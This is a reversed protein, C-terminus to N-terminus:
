HTDEGGFVMREMPLTCQRWHALDPAASQKRYCHILEISDKSTSNKFVVVHYSQLLSTGVYTRKDRISKEFNRIESQLAGERGSELLLNTESLKIVLTPQGNHANYCGIGTIEKWHYTALEILNDRELNFWETHLDSACESLPWAFNDDPLPDTTADTRSEPYEGFGPYGFNKHHKRSSISPSAKDYSAKRRSNKEKSSSIARPEPQVQPISGSARRNKPNSRPSEAYPPPPYSPTPAHGESDAVWSTQPEPAPAPGTSEGRNFAFQSMSAAYPSPYTTSQDVSATYQSPYTSFQNSFSVSQTYPVAQDNPSMNYGSLVNRTTYSEASWTPTALSPQRQTTTSVRTDALTVYEHGPEPDLSGGAYGFSAYADNQPQSGSTSPLYSPNPAPVYGQSREGTTSNDYAASASHGSYQWDSSSDHGRDPRKSHRGKHPAM